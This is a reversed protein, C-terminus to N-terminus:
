ANGAEGPKPDGVIGLMINAMARIAARSATCDECSCHSIKRAMRLLTITLNGAAFLKVTINKPKKDLFEALEITLSTIEQETAFDEGYCGCCGCQEKLAKLAESLEEPNNATLITKPM